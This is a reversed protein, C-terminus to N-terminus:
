DLNISFQVNMCWSKDTEISGAVNEMNQYTTVKSNNSM